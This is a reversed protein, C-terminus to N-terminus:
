SSQVCKGQLPFKAKKLAKDKEVCPPFSPTQKTHKSIIKENKRLHSYFANCKHLAIPNLITFDFINLDNLHMMCPNIIMM